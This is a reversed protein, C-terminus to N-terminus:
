DGDSLRTFTQEECLSEDYPVHLNTMVRVCMSRLTPKVRGWVLFFFFVGFLQIVTSIMAM